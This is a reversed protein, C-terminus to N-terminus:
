GYLLDRIEIWAPEGAPLMGYGLRGSPPFAAYQNDVWIVLGLPGHPTIDTSFVDTGDLLFRVRGSNWILQYDHWQCPDLSLAASDQRVFRRALRRLVRTASPWLLFPLALLGPALFVTPGLWSQFTATLFGQGPRDDRLSLYNPPSAFFFWASQPLAPLYFGRRGGPLAMGFPDNWLGFGWTGPIDAASARAKLNLQFPAQWRFHLRPLGPYDDLQAVRYQGAPGAPIQLRWWGASINRVQAGTTLCPQLDLSNTKGTTDM